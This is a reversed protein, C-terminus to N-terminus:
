TDPKCFVNLLSILRNNQLVEPNITSQWFYSLLLRTWHLFYLFPRSITLSLHWLCFFVEIVLRLITPIPSTLWSCHLWPPCKPTSPFVYWNEETFTELLLVIKIRKLLKFFASSEFETVVIHTNMSGSYELPITIKALRSLLRSSYCQPLLNRNQKRILALEFLPSNETLTGVRVKFLICQHINTKRRWM